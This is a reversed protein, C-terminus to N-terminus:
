DALILRPFTISAIPPTSPTEPNRYAYLAEEIFRRLLKMCSGPIRAHAPIAGDSLVNVGAIAMVIMGPTDRDTGTTM